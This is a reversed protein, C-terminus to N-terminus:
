EVLFASLQSIWFRFNSASVLFDGQENRYFISPEEGKRTIVKLIERASALGRPRWIQGRRLM